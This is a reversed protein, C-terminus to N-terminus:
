GAVVALVDDLVDPVFCSVHGGAYGHFTAGAAELRRCFPRFPDEDGSVVHLPPSPPGFADLPFGWPQRWFMSAENGYAHPQRSGEAAAADFIARGPGLVVERDSAPLSRLRLSEGVPGGKVEMARTIVSFLRPRDRATTVLRGMAPPLEAILVDDAPPGPNIAVGRTVLDPATAVLALVHCGGGSHGVVAVREVGLRAAVARADDVVSTLRRGPQPTSHGSGPRDWCVLRIGHTQAARELHGVELRSSGTGHLYFAVPGQPDGVEGVALHRGDPLSIPDLPRFAM